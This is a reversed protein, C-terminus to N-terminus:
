LNFAQVVSNLEALNHFVATPKHSALDEFSYKGTAVAITTAGYISGAEIDLPTDGIVILDEPRAPEVSLLEKASKLARAVITHREGFDEAFGGFAFWHSLGIRKLKARASSEFNGTQLGLHVSPIASLHAVLETVGPLVSCAEDPALETELQTLYHRKLTAAESDSLERGLACNAIDRFILPDTRGHAEVSGWTDSLGFTLEFARESARRGCGHSVMITGDIDFLVIKM